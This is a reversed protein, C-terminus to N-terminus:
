AAGAICNGEADKMAQDLDAIAESREGYDRCLLLANPEGCILRRFVADPLAASGDWYAQPFWSWVGGLEFPEFGNM